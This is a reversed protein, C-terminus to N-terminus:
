ITPQSSAMDPLPVGVVFDFQMRAAVMM